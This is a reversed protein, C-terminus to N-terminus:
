ASAEPAFPSAARWAPRREAAPAGIMASPRRQPTIIPPELSCGKGQVGLRTEGRERVKYRRRDRVRLIERLEGGGPRAEDGGRVLGAPPDLAVQVVTGLLPEDRELERQELVLQRLNGVPQRAHVIVQPLHCAADM